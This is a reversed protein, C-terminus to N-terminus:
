IMFSHDINYEGTGVYIKGFQNTETTHFAIAGLWLLSRLVVHTCDVGLGRQKQISWYTSCKGSVMEETNTGVCWNSIDIAQNCDLGNWQSNLSGDKCISNKPHALATKSIESVVAALRSEELIQLEKFDGQGFREGGVNQKNNNNNNEEPNNSDINNMASPDVCDYSFSPDGIFRGRLTLALDKVSEEVEELICWDSANLSYLTQLSSEDNKMNKRYGQAIFYDDKLGNIKGWFSIRSFNYQAKTVTLSNQLTTKQEKSFVVGNSAFIDLDNLLNNADM